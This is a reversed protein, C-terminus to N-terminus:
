ATKSKKDYKSPLQELFRAFRGWVQPRRKINEQLEERTLGDDVFELFLNNITADRRSAQDALLQEKTM